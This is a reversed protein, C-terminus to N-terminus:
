RVQNIREVSELGLAPRDANPDESAQKNLVGQLMSNKERQQVIEAEKAALDANLAREIRRNEESAHLAALRKGDSRGMWYAGTILAVFALATGAAILLKINGFLM